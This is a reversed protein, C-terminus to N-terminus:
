AKFLERVREADDVTDVGGAPLSDVVAVQIALGLWLVRLQELSEAQEMAVPEARSLAQLTSVRYSYLGVHRLFPGGSPLAGLAAGPALAFEDRQWPIPARSFYLARGHRDTVVKVVNPDFLETRERIPTALTAVSASPTRQLTRAVRAVLEAPLGPEDGQLNVIVLEPDFGKRRVVEALRDTGTAHHPSTLMAEGGARTVVEAIREDDTAVIAFAAGAKAAVDLVRVVMPKGALDILPKGPLRTSAYRAPIIVGFAPEASM